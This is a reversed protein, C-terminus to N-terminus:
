QLVCPRGGRRKKIQTLIKVPPGDSILLSSQGPELGAERLADCVGKYKLKNATDMEHLGFYILQRRGHRLLHKAALYGGMELDCGVDFGLTSSHFCYVIPIPDAKQQVMKREMGIGMIGKVRHAQFERIVKQQESSSSMNATLVEFGHAQLISIVKSQFISVLGRHSPVSILGVLTSSGGRLQRAASSPVFNYKEVLQLVKKRTNESVRTSNSNNLVSSVAFRSVGAM